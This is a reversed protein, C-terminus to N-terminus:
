IAILFHMKVDLQHLHWNMNAALSLLIRITNLKAVLSFTESYDIGYTQTFGKAVLRAKYREISGDSNYKVTFVWKCGITKKGSPLLTVIWTKNKELAKMEELVVERSKPIELAVQVIKPIEVSSLKSTFASMSSSLNSYSIFNSM